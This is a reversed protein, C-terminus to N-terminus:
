MWEDISSLPNEISFIDVVKLIENKYYDYDIDDKTSLDFLKYGGKSKIYYYQTGVVPKIGQHEQAMIAMRYPISSTSSYTNLPKGLKVNLAFWKLPFDLKMYKDIIPSPDIENLKANALEKIFAKKILTHSSATLAVGHIILKEGKKLIYNKAKYFYGKDYADIDVSLNIERKFKNYLQKKFKEIVIKNDNNNTTYYIGDTDAELTSKPYLEELIDILLQACERGICCTAIAIPAFGFPHKSYGMNGYVGGNAKLKRNDSIARYKPDGTERYKQKYEARELLFRGVLTSSFGPTKSVRIVMDKNITDDPINYIYWDDYETMEFKGMYPLYKIFSTTDPSLNFTSM